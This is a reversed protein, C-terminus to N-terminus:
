DDVDIFAGALAKHCLLLSLSELEQWVPSAYDQKLTIEMQALLAVAQRLLEADLRALADSLLPRRNQWIRQKDFLARLPTNVSQRQLNVLLLLERQLTRLLIPPEIGERQLQQLIHM